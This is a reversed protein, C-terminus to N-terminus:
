KNTKVGIMTYLPCYGSVVSSILMGSIVLLLGALGPLMGWLYAAIILLSIITRAIRDAMGVNKGM